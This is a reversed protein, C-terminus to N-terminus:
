QIMQYKNELRPLNIMNLRRKMWKYVYGIATPSCEIGHAANAIVVAEKINRMWKEANKLSRAYPFLIDRDGLLLYIDSSIDSLSSGMRYPKQTKDVYNKLAFMEYDIILEEYPTPVSHLPKHFIAKDLFAAINKRTPSIVPLLNYYLNKPSMSFSQLCGPNLLFAAEVCDPNVLCLKMCILGGFSAGAIFTRKLGLKEIVESAWIGYNTSVIDPTGGDSLNPLGNTEVLYVRFTDTLVSLNNNMDWFLSSTRAGPFIVLTAVPSEPGTAYVATKGLSTNLTLEEYQKGNEAELRSVWERFWAHCQLPNKFGSKRKIKM